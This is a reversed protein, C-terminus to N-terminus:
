ANANPNRCKISRKGSIKLTTEWPSREESKSRINYFPLFSIPAAIRSNLCYRVITQHSVMFLFHLSPSVLGKPKKQKTKTKIWITYLSDNFHNRLIVTIWGESYHASIVEHQMPDQDSGSSKHSQAM